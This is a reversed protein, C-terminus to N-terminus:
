VSIPCVYELIVKRIILCVIQLEEVNMNIFASKIFNKTTEVNELKAINGLMVILHEQVHDM